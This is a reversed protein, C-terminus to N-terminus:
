YSEEVFGIADDAVQVDVPISEDDTRPEGGVLLLGDVVDLTSDERSRLIAMVLKVRRSPKDRAHQKSRPPEDYGHPDILRKRTRLLTPGEAGPILQNNSFVHHFLIANFEACKGM